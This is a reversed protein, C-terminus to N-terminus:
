RPLRALMARAEDLHEAPNGNDVCWQLLERAREPRFNARLYYKGLTFHLMGDEPFAAVGRELAELAEAPAGLLALTNGFLLWAGPSAHGERLATEFLPVADEYRKDAYARMADMGPWSRGGRTVAAIRALRAEDAGVGGAMGLMGIAQALSDIQEMGISYDRMIGRARLDEARRALRDLMWSQLTADREGDKQALPQMAGILERYHLPYDLLEVMRQTIAIDKDTNGRNRHYKRLAEYGSLAYDGYMKDSDLTLVREFRAASAERSARALDPLNPPRAM